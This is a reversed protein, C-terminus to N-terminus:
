IDVGANLIVALWHDNVTTVANTVASFSQQITVMVALVTHLHLLLKKIIKCSRRFCDAISQLLCNILGFDIVIINFLCIPIGLCDAIISCCLFRCCLFWRKLRYIKLIYPKESWRPIGARKHLTGTM